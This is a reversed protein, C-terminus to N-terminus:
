WLKRVVCIYGDADAKIYLTNKGSKYFIYENYSNGDTITLYKGVNEILSFDNTESVFISGDTYNVVNASTISKYEIPIIDGAKVNLTLVIQGDIKDKLM